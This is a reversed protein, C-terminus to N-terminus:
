LNCRVGVNEDFHVSKQNLERCDPLFFFATPIVIKSTKLYNSGTSYDKLVIRTLLVLWPQKTSYLQQKYDSIPIGSKARNLCKM